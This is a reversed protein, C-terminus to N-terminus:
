GSHTNDVAALEDSHRYLQAGVIAFWIGVGPLTIFYFIGLLASSPFIPSLSGIVAITNVVAGFIATRRRFVGKSMPYCWLLFGFTGTVFSIVTQMPLAAYGYTAAGVFSAKLADTAATSYSQSLSVLTLSNLETVSIDYFIFFANFTAGLLALTRNYRRLVLYLAVIPIILLFDNVDWGVWIASALAQNQSVLQLYSTANGPVGSPYLVAAMRGLVNWVFAVVICLIGGLKYIGKWDRGNVPGTSHAEKPEAETGSLFRRM